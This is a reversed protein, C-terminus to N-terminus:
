GRRRGPGAGRARKGGFLRAGAEIGSSPTAIRARWGILHQKAPDFAASLTASVPARPFGALTEQWRSWTLQVPRGVERAIIAVEEAIRTDLRADFSGGVPLAYVTVDNRGLGAGRAAAHAAAEPAQTAIWLELRGHNLRATASAPELPAHLAPEVDYRASLSPHVLLADPDGEAAIRSASGHGLATDLAAECATSDVVRGDERRDIRFRPDMAAIARDAAHWTHAVAALWREATVVAITGPVKRAAAADHSALRCHGQPGHAIAAYVMGPLRVDAAFVMSGDVKAPLDIRPFDPAAVPGAPTDADERAPAIRLGPASPPPGALAADILRAFAFRQKGCVVQHDHTDCAAPAVGAQAAAAAILAERLAAAALRLRPEFAALTTGCATMLVPMRDAEYRVLADDPTGALADGLAGGVWPAGAIARPLWMTAWEAAIVPDAYFPSLPAPEVGVRRWDAGLEVAVIQAALTTVGQGMETAPVAVSVTGDRSLRILGDIVHDGEGAMLPARYHRPVLALGVVLAGAGGAGILVARRSIRPLRRAIPM